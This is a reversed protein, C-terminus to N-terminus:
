KGLLMLKPLTIKTLKYEVIGTKFDLMNKITLDVFEDIFLYEDEFEINTLDKKRLRQQVRDFRMEEIDEKKESIITGIRLIMWQDCKSIIYNELYLKSLNYCTTGSHNLNIDNVGTTSAFIIPKSYSDIISITNKVYEHMKICDSNSLTTGTFTPSGMLFLYDSNEIQKQWEIETKERIKKSLFGNWGTLSVKM